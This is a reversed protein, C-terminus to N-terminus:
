AKYSIAELTDDYKRLPRKPPRADVAKIVKVSIGDHFRWRKWPTNSHCSFWIIASHNNLSDLVSIWKLPIKKKWKRFPTSAPIAKWNITAKSKVPKISLPGDNSKNPVSYPKTSQIMVKTGICLGIVPHEGNLWGKPWTGVSELRPPCKIYPRTRPKIM